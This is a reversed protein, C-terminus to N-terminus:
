KAVAPAAAPAVPLKICKHQMKFSAKMQTAVDECMERDSFPGMTQIQTSGAVILALLFQM